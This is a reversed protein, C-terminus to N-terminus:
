RGRAQPHTMIFQAMASREAPSLADYQDPRLASIADWSWGGVPGGSTNRAPNAPTAGVSRPSPAPAKASGNAATQGYSGIEHKEAAARLLKDVNKPDGDEDFEIAAYDLILRALDQKIGLEAAALKIDARIAAEQRQRQLDAKESQWDAREKEYREKETLKANEDEHFRKELEALRKDDKRYKANENRLSAIIADKDEGQSSAPSSSSGSADHASPVQSAPLEQSNRSDPSAEPRDQRNGDSDNPM